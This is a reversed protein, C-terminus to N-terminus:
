LQLYSQWSVSLQDTKKEIIIQCSLQSQELHICVQFLCFCMSILSDAAVQQWIVDTGYYNTTFLIPGEPKSIVKQCDKSKM